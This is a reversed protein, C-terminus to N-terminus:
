GLFWFVVYLSGFIVQLALSVSFYGFRFRRSRGVLWNALIIFGPFLVLVYRAISRWASAEFTHVGTFLILNVGMYLLWEGRRWRPRLLMAGLLAIFLLASATELVTLFEPKRIVQALAYYTGYIPGVWALKSGTQLTSAMPPFGAYARWAQFSLGGVMALGASILSPLLDGIRRPEKKRRWQIWGLWALAAASLMGPGRTLSALLAPPGALWWRRRYAALFAALTLGIFLSETYPAMLFFATPYAAMVLVSTRATPRGFLQDAILYLFVLAAATALTSILLGGAVYDHTLWRSTAGVLSAYLPYYVSDPVGVGFYGLRALNLHHIADWRPWVGFIAQGVRSAYWPLGAFLDASPNPGLPLHPAVVLWVAAALVGLGVRWALTVTVGLRFAERWPLPRLDIEPDEAKGATMNSGTSDADM